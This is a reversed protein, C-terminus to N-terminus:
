KIGMYINAHSSLSSKDQVKRYAEGKQIGMDSSISTHVTVSIQSSIDNLANRKAEEESKGQGYGIYTNTDQASLKHYWTPSANLVLSLSYFIFIYILLRSM